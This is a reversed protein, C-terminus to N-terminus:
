THSHPVRPEGGTAATGTAIRVDELAGASLVLLSCSPASAYMILGVPYLSNMSFTPEPIKRNSRRGDGSAHLPLTQPRRSTPDRITADRDGPRDPRRRLLPM